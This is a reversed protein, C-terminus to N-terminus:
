QGRGKSHLESREPHPDTMADLLRSLFAKIKKMSTDKAM